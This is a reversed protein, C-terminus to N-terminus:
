RRPSRRHSSPSCSRTAASSHSTTSSRAETSPWPPSRSLRPRGRRRRCSRGPPVEEHHLRELLATCNDLLDLLQDNGAGALDPRLGSTSKTSLHAPAVPCSPRSAERRALSGGAAAAATAPRAPRACATGARVRVTRSRRHGSRPDHHGGHPRSRPSPSPAPRGCRQPWATASRPSGCIRSWCPWCTPFPRPWPGPVSFPVPWM